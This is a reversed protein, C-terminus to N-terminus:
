WRQQERGHQEEELEAGLCDIFDTCANINVAPHEVLACFGYILPHPSLKNHVRKEDTRGDGEEAGGGMSRRAGGM